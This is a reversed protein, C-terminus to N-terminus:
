IKESFGLKTLYGFFLTAFSINCHAHLLVRPLTATLHSTLPSSVVGTEHLRLICIFATNTILCFTSIIRHFLSLDFHRILSKAM